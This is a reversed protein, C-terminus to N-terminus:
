SEAAADARARKRWAEDPAWVLRPCVRWAEDTRLIVVARGLKLLAELAEATPAIERVDRM